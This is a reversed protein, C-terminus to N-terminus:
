AAEVSINTAIHHPIKPLKLKLVGDKLKAKVKDADVESSLTLQRCFRNSSWERVITNEDKKQEETETKGSLILTKGNISVEIEEPKFGPVGARIKINDETETLDVPVPLLVESEAKFWDDLERGYEGGRRQFYEFAKRTTERTTEALRELMKEAEIFIPSFDDAKDETKSIKELAQENNITGIEDIKASKTGQENM